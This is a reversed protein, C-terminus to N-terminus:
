PATTPSNQRAHSSPTSTGAGRPPILVGSEILGAAAGRVGPAELAATIRAHEEDTRAREMAQALKASGKSLRVTRVGALRGPSPTPAVVAFTMEEQSLLM